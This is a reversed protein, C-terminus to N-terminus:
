SDWVSAVLTVSPTERVLSRGAALRGDELARNM